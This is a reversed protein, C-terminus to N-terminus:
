TTYPQLVSPDRQSVCIRVCRVYARACVCMCLFCVCVRARARARVCVCVRAVSVSVFFCLELVPARVFFVSCLYSPLGM